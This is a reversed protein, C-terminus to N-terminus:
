TLLSTLNGKGDHPWTAPPHQMEGVRCFRTVGAKALAPRLLAARPEPAELGCTQLYRGMPRVAEVVQALDDLPVVTVVRDLCSPALLRAEEDYAVTWATSDASEFLAVGHGAAM